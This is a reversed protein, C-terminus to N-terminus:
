LLLCLLTLLIFRKEEGLAVVMWTRPIERHVAYTSLQLTRESYLSSFSCNSVRVVLVGPIFGVERRLAVDVNSATGASAEILLM